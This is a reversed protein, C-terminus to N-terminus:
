KGAGARAGQMKETFFEAFGIKALEVIKKEDSGPPAVINITPNFTAGAAAALQAGPPAFRMAASQAGTAQRTFQTLADFGQTGGRRNAEQQAGAANGAIQNKVGNEVFQDLETGKLGRIKGEKRLEKKNRDSSYMNAFDFAVDAIAEGISGLGDLVFDSFAQFGKKAGEWVGEWGGIAKWWDKFLSEGGTVWYYLDEIILLVVAITAAILLLPANAIVWARASAYAAKISMGAAAWALSAMLRWGALLMGISKGSMLAALFAQVRLVAFAGAVSLIVLTLAEGHDVIWKFIKFVISLTKALIRMGAALLAVAARLGSAIWERNAKFWELFADTLERLTPLLALTITNRLGAFAVHVKDQQDGFEELAGVSKEDIEGGLDIFEQRLKAIGESGENLFPVLSAGQRGFAKMALAAKETDPAVKIADAVDALLDATPRLQGNADRLTVGLKRFGEAQEKGGKSAAYANRQLIRLASSMGELSSGSLQAAFGLEQLDKTPIGLQQSMDSLQGGLAVTQDILGKFWRGAAYIGLGTLAYKLDGIAKDAAKISSNDVKIRLGAFLDAIKM